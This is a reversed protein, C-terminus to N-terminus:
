ASALLRYADDAPMPRGYLYGQGHDCGLAALTQGLEVTEVGEAVTRLGLAQALGLAARVIAVKDRDALMGSVLSRDIKLVEIPLKQLFALNSYGTGFDDMAITTGLGKLAELMGAVREPDDVLASETLELKLREGALGNLTLAREVVQVVDDRQLQITSLNVAIQVGCDGGARKDWEALTAAAEHIAWRGLPVILGSEEAVPVFEGPQYERGSEDTWRALAEFAVIRGTGLHVIPQFALTLLGGEVARRLATEVGFRERESHFAQPKYTETVGSAKARKMAFQAHRILEEADDAADGGFAIGIAGDVRIEFDTLRFPAALAGRIRKAVHDADGTGDDLTLLIAFEDGGTRALADRLRLAGRLRRAVTILLEDGIMGGLCANIRSFRSLDIMLVAHRHREAAPVAEVLDVFGSRNPLGTLSDTTMERRLSHETRAQATNDVLSVNCRDTFCTSSRALTVRYWRCDIAEGVTWDFDERLQDSALFARIRRGLEILLVSRHPDTGLGTRRYAANMAFFGLEDGDLLVHVAPIPMLELGRAVLAPEVPAVTDQPPASM